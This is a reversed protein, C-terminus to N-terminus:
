CVGWYDSTLANNGLFSIANWCASSSTKGESLASISTQYYGANIDTEWWWVTCINIQLTRDLLKHSKSFSILTQQEKGRRQFWPQFSVCRCKDFCISAPHKTQGQFLSHVLPLVLLSIMSYVHKGRISTAIRRLFILGKVSLTNYISIIMKSITETHTWFPSQM